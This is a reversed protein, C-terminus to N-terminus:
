GDNTIDDWEELVPIDKSFPIGHMRIYLFAIAAFGSVCLHIQAALMEIEPDHPYWILASMMVISLIKLINPEAM